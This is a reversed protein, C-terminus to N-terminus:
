RFLTIEDNTNVNVVEDMIAAKLHTVALVSESQISILRVYAISEKPNLGAVVIRDMPLLDNSTPLAYTAVKFLDGTAPHALYNIVVCGVGYKQCMLRYFQGIRLQQFQSDFGNSKQKKASKNKSM